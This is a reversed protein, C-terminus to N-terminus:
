KLNKLFIMAIGATLIALLSLIPSLPTEAPSEEAATTAFVSPVNPNVVISRVNQGYLFAENTVTPQKPYIKVYLTKGSGTFEVREPNNDGHLNVVHHIGDEGAYDMVWDIASSTYLVVPGTGTKVLFYAPKDQSSRTHASYILVEPTTAAPIPEAVSPEGAITFTKAGIYGKSDTFSVEYDGNRTVPVEVSFDGAYNTNVYRPGFIVENDPDVVEIQIGSNEGGKITGIVFL